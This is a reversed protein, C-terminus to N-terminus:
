SMRGGGAVARQVCGRRVKISWLDSYHSSRKKGGMPQNNLMAAVDKAVTKDLFEVWGESCRRRAAARRSPPLCPRLVDEDVDAAPKRM